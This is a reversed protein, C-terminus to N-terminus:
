DTSIRTLADPKAGQKGPRFVIKFDYDALLESWRAQRRNLKKTTTFHELNKHDTLILTSAEVSGLEATWTEFANVIALLEKDFIEYNCEAPLMKKSMFAVPRLVGSHDYQSLVAATVFDSADTELVTQLRPDFHALMTGDKFAQIIRRFSAECDDDWSFPVDKKTLNVMPTALRSFEPIFRRYFNAFGLFRQIDRVSRPRPWEQVCAVKKPDMNIGKTSIILGLYTVQSTEFNCKSIDVQLGHERLRQLVTRVHSRHDSLTESYILIDDMYATCFQDLLGRLAHNIYAQFSAPGNCLGFPLVLPEFLGYRCTFAAKWEDGPKIRLKNFASIVDLKTYY